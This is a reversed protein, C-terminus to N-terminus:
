PGHNAVVARGAAFLSLLKDIQAAEEPQNSLTALIRATRVTQTAKSFQGTEAYAAALTEIFNPLRSDTLQVAKTALRVAEEGNRLEPQSTTALIWALSNLVLPNNSDVNLAERHHQMAGEVRGDAELQRALQYQEIAEPKWQFTEQCETSFSMSPFDPVEGAQVERQNAPQTNFQVRCFVKLVFYDQHPLKGIVFPVPGFNAGYWGAAKSKTAGMPNIWSIPSSEMDEIWGVSGAPLAVRNGIWPIVAIDEPQLLSREVDIPLGGLKEMYYQFAGHGEFWVTHSASKYKAAIQAAVTRASDAQQYDVAAIGLAITAASILPWLLRGDTM